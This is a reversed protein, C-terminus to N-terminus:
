SNIERRSHLEINYSLNSLGDHLFKSISMDIIFQVLIGKSGGGGGGGRGNQISLTGRNGSHQM